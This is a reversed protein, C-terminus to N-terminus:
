TEMAPDDVDGPQASGEGGRLPAFRNSSPPPASPPAIIEEMPDGDSRSRSRRASHEQRKRAPSHPRSSRDDGKKPSPTSKRHNSTSPRPSAVVPLAAPPPLAPNAIAKAPEDRKETHVTNGVDVKEVPAADVHKV